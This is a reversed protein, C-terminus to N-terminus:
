EGMEEVILLGAITRSKALRSADGIWRSEIWRSGNLGVLRTIYLISRLGNTTDLLKEENIKRNFFPYIRYNQISFYIRHGQFKFLFFEDRKHRTSGFVERWKKTDHLMLLICIYIYLDSPDNQM